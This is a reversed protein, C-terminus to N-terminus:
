SSLKTFEKHLESLHHEGCYDCIINFMNTCSKTRKYFHKLCYICVKLQKLLEIRNPANWFQQCEQLEHEGKCAFCLKKGNSTIMARSVKNNKQYYPNKNFPTLKLKHVHTAATVEKLLFENLQEMSPPDKQFGLFDEFRTKSTDDMRNVCFAQLVQDLTVKLMSINGRLQNFLSKFRLISELDGTKMHFDPSSLMDIVCNLITRPQEYLSDLILWAEEYSENTTQLFKIAELARGELNNKLYMFKDTDNYDGQSLLRKVSSKFGKYELVDDSFPKIKLEKPKIYTPKESLKILTKMMQKIDEKKFNSAETLEQFEEDEDMELSIKSATDFGGSAEDKAEEKFGFDKLKKIFEKNILDAEYLIKKYEAPPDDPLWSKQAEYIQNWHLLRLNNFKTLNAQTRRKIGEKGLRDFSGQLNELSDQLNDM